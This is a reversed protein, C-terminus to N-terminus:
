MIGIPTHLHGPFVYDLESGTLGFHNVLVDCFVDRYDNVPALFRGSHLNAIEVGPWTGHVQGGQSTGGIVFMTGGVGHDVGASANELAERGFESQVVVVVDNMLPGLDAVFAALAAAFNTTTYSVNNWLNSHHDWGHMVTFFAQVGLDAKIVEAIEALQGGIEHGPYTSAPGYNNPDITTFHDVLAFADNCGKRTGSLAPSRSISSSQQLMVRYYTEIDTGSSQFSLGSTSDVGYSPYDGM